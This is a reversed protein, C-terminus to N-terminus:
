GGNPSPNGRNITGLIEKVEYAILSACIEFTVKETIGVM